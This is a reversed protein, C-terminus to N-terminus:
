YVIHYVAMFSCREMLCLSVFLDDFPQKFYFDVNTMATEAFDQDDVSGRKRNKFHSYRSKYVHGMMHSMAFGVEHLTMDKDVIPASGKLKKSGARLKSLEFLLTRM